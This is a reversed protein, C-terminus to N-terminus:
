ITPWLRDEGLEGFLQTLAEVAEEYDTRQQSASELAVALYVSVLIVVFEVILKTIVKRKGTTKEELTVEWLLPDEPSLHGLCGAL